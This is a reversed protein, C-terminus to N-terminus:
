KVDEIHQKLWYVSNRTTIKVADGFVFLQEITSTQLVENQKDINVLYASRGEMASHLWYRPKMREKSVEDELIKENKDSISEIKWILQKM